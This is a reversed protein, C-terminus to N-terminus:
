SIAFGSQPHRTPGGVIRAGCFLFAAELKSAANEMAAPVTAFTV